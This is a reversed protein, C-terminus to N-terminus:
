RGGDLDKDSEYEYNKPKKVVKIRKKSNNSLKSM